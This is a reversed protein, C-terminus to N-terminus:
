RIIIKQRIGSKNSLIYIGSPWNGINLRTTSNISGSWVTIGSTSHITLLQYEGTQPQIFLYDTAPVPYCTFADPDITLDVIAAPSNAENFTHEMWVFDGTGNPNRAYSQDTVAEGFTVEQQIAMDPSCLYVTEGGSSLKFDAHLGEQELDEDCWIILYGYAEISTGPPFSWEDLENADDSMYWGGLDIAVGSNNYLEIWDDYEGSPDPVAAENDPMLENIAIESGGTDTNGPTGADVICVSQSIVLNNGPTDGAAHVPYRVLLIIFLMCAMM